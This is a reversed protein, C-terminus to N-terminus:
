QLAELYPTMIREVRCIRAFEMLKKRNADKRELYDKLAEIAISLGIKNRFKFCDAITKEPSYVKIPIGNLVHTEVGSTLCTGSSRFIRLPPWELRPTSKERPLM